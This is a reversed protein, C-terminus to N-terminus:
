PGGAGGNEASAVEITATREPFLGDFYAYTGPQEFTVSFEDGPRMVGSDWRVASEEESVVAHDLEGTNRWTVTAGVQITITSPDFGLDSVKVLVADTSSLCAPPALDFDEGRVPLEAALDVRLIQGSGTDGGVAPLSIYLSGDPGFELHTPFNLQTAVEEGSDLGTQRVVRGTGPVFFPPRDRGESLQAAYLQNDPGVALGTIMTLGIWVTETTGDPSVRIVTAAGATFPASTLHGVYLSGDSGAALATPVMDEASLDAVRIISGDLGVRLIQEHNSESVWVAGGAPDAVMDYWSGDPDLDAAPPNLVPNARLWAGLDAILLPTGDTIDYVGAPSEPNGHATGGGAGLLLLRGNVQALAAPGITEGAASRASPLGEIFTTPCGDNIRAVRGSPGGSHPGTPPPVPETAAQEGGTGAEAVLLDGSEAFIFGRPNTLGGAAVSVPPTEQGRAAIPVLMLAIALVIPVRALRTTTM